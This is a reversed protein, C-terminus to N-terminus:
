AAPVTGNSLMLRLLLPGLTEGGASGEHAIWCETSGHMQYDGGKWGTFWTGHASRADALMHGVTVNAAPEFALENYYGRYSHPNTFGDPCVKAPNETELAAILDDLTM